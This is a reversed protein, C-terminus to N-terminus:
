FAERQLTWGDQDLLALVGNPGSLHAAGFGVVLAVDGEGDDTAARLADVWARNRRDLLAQEIRDFDQTVTGREEEPLAAIAQLRDFEWLRRHTQAFYASLLTQYQDEARDASALAAKVMDIQAEISFATFITFVTDFPELARVPVGAAQATDMMQQDLGEPATGGFGPAACAPIGLLLTVYWPQLKAAMIAPVGRAKLEESLRQWTDPDLRELLSPGSLYLLEPRTAIAQQLAEIEAGTAELYLADAQRLRPALRAMPPALRPDEVHITGVLTMRARGKTALWRNGTAFSDDALRRDLEATVQPPAAALLDRGQCAAAAEQATAPSALLLAPLVLRRLSSRWHALSPRRNLHKGRHVSSLKAARM